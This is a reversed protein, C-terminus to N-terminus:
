INLIKHSKTENLNPYNPGTVHQNSSHKRSIKLNEESIKTIKLFLFDWLIAVVFIMFENSSGEFSFGM